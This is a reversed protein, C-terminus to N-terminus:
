RNIFNIMENTKTMKGQRALDYFFAFAVYFRIGELVVDKVISKAFNIISRNQDFERYTSFIFENHKKIVEDTKWMDFIKDQEQKDVLASLVKSYSQNHIIEQFNIVAMVSSVHANGIFSSVEGCYDAQISDLSALLGIIKKFTDQEHLELSSWQKVDDSMNVEEAFWTNNTLQKWMPFVWSYTVDNWNVVGSSPELIGGGKNTATFNLGVPRKNLNTM